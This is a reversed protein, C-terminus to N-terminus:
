TEPKMSCLFSVGRLFSRAPNLLSFQVRVLRLLLVTYAGQFTISPVKHIVSISLTYLIQNCNLHRFHKYSSKYPFLQMEDVPPISFFISHGKGM